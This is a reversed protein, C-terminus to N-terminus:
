GSVDHRKNMNFRQLKFLRNIGALYDFFDTVFKRGFCFNGQFVNGYGPVVKLGPMIGDASFRTLFLCAVM